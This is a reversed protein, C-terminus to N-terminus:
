LSISLTPLTTKDAFDQIEQMNASVRAAWTPSAAYIHGISYVDTAGWHDMYLHRLDHSIVQIAEKYSLFCHVQDGFIGYGWSNYCHAPEAHAWSSEVGSIAAVLKWDINNKDAEDVFIQSEPALESDYQELFKKLANGRNDHTYKPTVVSSSVAFTASTSKTKQEAYASFSSFIFVLPFFVLILVIKRFM